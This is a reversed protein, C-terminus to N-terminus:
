VAFRLIAAMEGGGPLDAKRVGLIRAGSALARGAIEDVVGYTKTSAEKAFSVAGTEEDVTGAM